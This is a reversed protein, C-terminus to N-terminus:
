RELNEQKIFDKTPILKLKPITKSLLLIEKEEQLRKIYWVDLNFQTVWKWYWLIKDKASLNYKIIYGKTEPHNNFYKNEQNLGYGSFEIATNKCSTFSTFMGEKSPEIHSAEQYLKVGRYVCKNEIPIKRLLEESFKLITEYHKKFYKIRDLSYSTYKHIFNLYTNSARNTTKGGFVNPNKKTVTKDKKFTFWASVVLFSISIIKDRNFIIM